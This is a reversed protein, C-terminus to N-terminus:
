GEIRKLSIGNAKTILYGPVAEFQERAKKDSQISRSLTVGNQFSSRAAVVKGLHENGPNMLIAFDPRYLGLFNPDCSEVHSIVWGKKKPVDDWMEYLGKSFRRSYEERDETWGGPVYKDFDLFKVELTEALDQGLTTKGSGAAGTVVVHVHDEAFDDAMFEALLLVKKHLEASNFGLVSAALLDAEEKVRNLELNQEEATKNM